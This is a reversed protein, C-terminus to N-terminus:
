LNNWFNRWKSCWELCLYYVWFRMSVKENKTRKRVYYIMIAERQSRKATVVRCKEKLILSIWQIKFGKWTQFKTPQWGKQFIKSNRVNYNGGRNPPLLMHLLKNWHVAHEVSKLTSMIWPPFLVIVRRSWYYSWGKWIDVTANSLFFRRNNSCSNTQKDKM